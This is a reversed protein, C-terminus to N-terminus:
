RDNRKFEQPMQYRRKKVSPPDLVRFPFTRFSKFVTQQLRDFDDVEVSVVGDQLVLVGTIVHGDRCM